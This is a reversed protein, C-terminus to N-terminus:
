GMAGLSRAALAAVGLLAMGSTVRGRTRATLMATLMAVVILEAALCTLDLPGVPEIRDGPYIPVGNGIGGAVPLHEIDHGAGHAPMFWLDTTRTAVYLAIVGVQATVAVVLVWERLPWRLAVAFGVQALGVAVFFTGFLWSEAAHAPAVLLHLAGAVVLWVM